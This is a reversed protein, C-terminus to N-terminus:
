KYIPNPGNPNRELYRTITPWWYHDVTYERCLESAEQVIEPNINELKAWTRQALNHFRVNIAEINYKVHLAENTYNEELPNIRAASRIYNSQIAQMKIINSKKAICIPIIPYELIPRILTKYLYLRTNTSMDKFRKLKQVQTKAYGTRGRLHVSTGRTNITLGLITASQKFPIIQNDIEIDVPKVASVSIIQFKNKNTNLKWLKEYQNLKEIERKTRRALMQKSKGPYTIVQTSDDAFIINFCGPSPAPMDYTYFTFLSPSLISGQPVGSKLQIPPGITNGIKIKATRDCLFNCLLKEFIDPLNINLIKFKLGNHWVKDFAKSIDRCVVNCQHKQLQSLAIKEYFLSLATNTGRHKRFGHQDKNYLDNDELFKIFRDNIIREFVKGMVELLSIPRYDAPQKANKGPKLAMCLISNKYPDPHYGMSLALNYIDKIIHYMENPVNILIKKGLGSEGPAKDKFKSIIYKVQFTEIPKTLQCHPNLRNLAARSYPRTKDYNENIYNNVRNENNQCFNQNEQHSICFIDKWIKRFLQEKEKEDYKKNGQEDLLYPTPNVKGGMIRKVSDWFSKPDNKTTEIKRILSEWNDNYAKKCEDRLQEQTTRFIHRQALTWGRREGIIKLNQYLTQLERQKQTEKPHPLTKYEVEPIAKKVAKKVLDTWQLIKGDIYEKNINRNETNVELEGCSELITEKFKEWNAKKYCLRKTGKVSIPKTAIKIIIPLHNSTTLPGQQIQLNMHMHRNGLIIDPTGSGRNNIVTKFEPGMHTVINRRILNDIIRGNNNTTSHGLNRSSANLDGVIYVPINKRLLNTIEQIPFDDRRPPIYTTGILIPGRRTEVQIALLDYNYEDIIKYKINKKIAIAIGAFNENEINRMHTNYGFIKFRKEDRKGVENLLIIDPDIKQYINYLENARLTTWTMVNHQVINLTEM